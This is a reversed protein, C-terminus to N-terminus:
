NRIPLVLQHIIVNRVTWSKKEVYNQQYITSITPAHQNSSWNRTRGATKVLSTQMVRRLEQTDNWIATIGYNNQLKENVKVTPLMGEQRKMKMM